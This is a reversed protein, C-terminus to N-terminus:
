FDILLFKIISDLYFCGDKIIRLYKLFLNVVNYINMNVNLVNMDELYM